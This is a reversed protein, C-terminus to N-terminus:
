PKSPVFKADVMEPMKRQRAMEDEEAGFRPNRTVETVLTAPSTPRMHHSSGFQSDM